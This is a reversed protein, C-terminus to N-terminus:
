AMLGPAKLPHMHFLTIKVENEIFPKLLQSNMDDTVVSEVLETVKEIYIPNSSSFLSQFYETTINELGEPTSVLDGERNRLQSIQNTRKRQSACAHFFTTNLNGNQLWNVRSRQQWYAEEQELLINLESRLKKAEDWKTEDNLDQECIQLHAQKRTLANLIAQVETKKWALLQKRYEKKKKKQVSPVNCTFCQIEENGKLYFGAENLTM